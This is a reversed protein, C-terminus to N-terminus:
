LPSLFVAASKAVWATVRACLGCTRPIVAAQRYMVDPLAALEPDLIASAKASSNAFLYRSATGNNCATYLSVLGDASPCTRVRNAHDYTSVPSASFATM